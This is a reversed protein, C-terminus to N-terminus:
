FLDIGRALSMSTSLLKNCVFQLVLAGTFFCLYIGIGWKPDGNAIVEVIDDITGWLCVVAIFTILLESVKLLADCISEKLHPKLCHRSAGASGVASRSCAEDAVALSICDLDLDAKDETLVKPYVAALATQDYGIYDQTQVFVAGATTTVENFNGNRLICGNPIDDFKTENMMLPPQRAVPYLTEQVIANRCLVCIYRDGSMENGFTVSQIGPANSSDKSKWRATPKKISGDPQQPQTSRLVGSIRRQATFHDDNVPLNAAREEPLDSFTLRSYTEESFVSDVHRSRAHPQSPSQQERASPVTSATPIKRVPSDVTPPDSM